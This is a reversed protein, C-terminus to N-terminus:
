HCVWAGISRLYRPWPDLSSPFFTIPVAMGQSKQGLMLSPLCSLSSQPACSPMGLKVTCWGSCLQERIGPETEVACDSELSPLIFLILFLSIPLKPLKKTDRLLHHPKSQFGTKLSKLPQTKKKWHVMNIIHLKGSSTNETDPKM